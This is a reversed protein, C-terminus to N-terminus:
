WLFFQFFNLERCLSQKQPWPFSFKFNANHRWPCLKPFFIESVIPIKFILFSIKILVLSLLCHNINMYSKQVIINLFFRNLFTTVFFNFFEFTPLWTFIMTVVIFAFNRSYLQKRRCVQQEFYLSVSTTLGFVSNKSFKSCLIIFCKGVYIWFIMGFNGRKIHHFNTDLFFFFNSFGNTLGTESIIKWLRFFNWIRKYIM